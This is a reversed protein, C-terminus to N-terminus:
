RTHPFPTTAPPNPVAAERPIAECDRTGLSFPTSLRCESHFAVQVPCTMSPISSAERWHDEFAHLLSSLSSLFTSPRSSDLTPSSSFPLDSLLDFHICTSNYYCIRPVWFMVPLSEIDGHPCQGNEDTKAGRLPKGVFPKKAESLAALRM